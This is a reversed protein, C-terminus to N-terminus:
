HKRSRSRTGKYPVAKYWNFKRQRSRTMPGPGIIGMIVIKPDHQRRTRRRAPAVPALLSPVAAPHLPVLLHLYAALPRFLVKNM